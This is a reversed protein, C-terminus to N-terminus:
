SYPNTKNPVYLFLYPLLTEKPESVSPFLSFAAGVHNSFNNINDYFWKYGCIVGLPMIIEQLSMNAVTFLGIVSLLSCPRWGSLMSPVSLPKVTFYALKISCFTSMPETAYKTVLKQIFGFDPAERGNEVLEGPIM